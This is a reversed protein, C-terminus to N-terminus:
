KQKLDHMIAGVIAMITKFLRSGSIRKKNSFTAFASAILRITYVTNITV